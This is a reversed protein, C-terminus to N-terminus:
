EGIGEKPNTKRPSDPKGPPDPRRRNLFQPSTVVTEMLSAFRYGNVALEAQMREVVPEDSLLLSRSLAYALLKRSLNELYDDQRRERIYAQVGEVGAGESGDPFVM